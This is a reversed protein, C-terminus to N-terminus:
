GGRESVARDALMLLAELYASGWPGYREVVDLFRRLWDGDDWGEQADGRATATIGAASVAFPRAEIRSPVRPIPRGLGHHVAVLHLALEIDVDPPMDLVAGTALASKLAAVSAIEHRLGDPLRAAARARRSAQFDATGFVSKAIPKAGLVPAGGHFFAQFRPDGKGHDHARAALVVAAGMRVPLRACHVHNQAQSAVAQAHADLTPPTQGEARIEEGTVQARALLVFAPRQPGIEDAFVLADDYEDAAPVIDDVDGEDLDGLYDDIARSVRRLELTGGDRLRAGAPGFPVCLAQLARQQSDRREAAAPAVAEQVGDHSSPSGRSDLRQVTKLLARAQGHVRRRLSADREVGDVSAALFAEALVDESLRLRPSRDGAAASGPERRLDAALDGVRARSAPALAGDAYGGCQAPLVLLDGPRIERLGMEGDGDASAGDLAVEFYDRGRLVVFRTLSGPADREAPREDVLIPGSDGGELDPGDLSAKALAALRPPPARLAQLLAHARAISLTVVEEHDPPVLRLLAARYARGDPTDDDARLDCRWCVGVDDPQQEEAGRLFVDTDPDAMPAPRPATQVLLELVAPTLDPADVTRSPPPRTEDRMLAAVSVDIPVGPAPQLARLWLWALAEDGHVTYLPSQTDRVITARARDLGSRNLRGLRQILAAASASQTVLAAVDADLGVEFTQTAIVVLPRDADAREFLQARHAALLRARDAPRQPGILLARAVDPCRQATAAAVDIATRVSNAVCAVTPAGDDLHAAVADVLAAVQDAPRDSQPEVLTALKEGALRPGLAVRDAESIAHVDEAAIGAIPTATLTIARLGPLGIPELARIARIAEVTQRFPEALHAEDLCITTDVAALGAELALSREGVGYGRFLLRSGIQAVTSTIVEAQFPHHSRTERAIGGRWRSVVLPDGAGGTLGHLRRAMEHLPSDTDGLARRLCTAILAAREHVEDVVIRRDIAWVTRAGVTRENPPREAQASLAWVLADITVTKGCGTPVAIARPPEGAALREALAQQWPYPRREHGSRAREVAAFFEGFAIM